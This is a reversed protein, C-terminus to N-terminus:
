NQRELKEPLTSRPAVIGTANLIQPISNLRALVVIESQSLTVFSFDAHVSCFDSTTELPTEESIFKIIGTDFDFKSNFTQLFDRGLIVDYTLDEIVHAEFPFLESQIIFRMTTKGLSNLLNGNVSSIGGSDYNDLSPYAQRLYKNWVFANVATIAAGSDVLCQFEYNEISISIMLSDSPFPFCISDVAGASISPVETAVSVSDPNDKPLSSDTVAQAIKAQGSVFGM